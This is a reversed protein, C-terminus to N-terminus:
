VIDPEFARIARAGVWPPWVHFPISRRNWLRARWTRIYEEVPAVQWDSGYTAPLVLGVTHGRRTLALERQRHRPDNAGPYVRLIRMRRVTEPAGPPTTGRPRGAGTRTSSPCRACRPEVSIVSASRRSMTSPICRSWM